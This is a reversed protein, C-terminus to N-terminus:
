AVPRVRGCSIKKSGCSCEYIWEGARKIHMKMCDPCQALTSSFIESMGFQGVTGQVLTEVNSPQKWTFQAVLGAVNVGVNPPCGTGEVTKVPLSGLQRVIAYTTLADIAQGRRVVDLLKDERPHDAFHDAANLIANFAFALEPWNIKETHLVALYHSLLQVQANDGELKAFITEFEQMTMGKKSIAFPIENVVIPHSLYWADLSTRGDYSEFFNPDLTLATMAYDHETFDVAVRRREVCQVGNKEIVQFTDCFKGYYASDQKDSPPSFSLIMKGKKGPKTKKMANVLTDNIYKWGALEAAEREQDPSGQQKRIMAGRLLIASLSEKMYDNAYLEDNHNVLTGISDIVHFREMLNTKLNTRIGSDLQKLGERDGKKRLRETQFVDAVPNYSRQLLETSSTKRGLAMDCDQQLTLFEFFDKQQELPIAAAATFVSMSDKQVNRLAVENTALM